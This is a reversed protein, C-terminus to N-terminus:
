KLADEIANELEIITEETGKYKLIGNKDIVLTTPMIKISYERFVFESLPFVQFKFPKKRLFPILSSKHDLAFGFFEVNKNKFKDTIKNLLPFENICGKCGIAWFDMVIVKGTLDNIDIIKGDIRKTTFTPVKQGIEVPKPKLNKVEKIIESYENLTLYKYGEPKRFINDPLEPSFDVAIVSIEWFTSKLTYKLVFGDIEGYPSYNVPIENTFYMEIKTSDPKTLLVKKCKYGLIVLSDNSYQYLYNNTDTSELVYKQYNEYEIFYREKKKEKPYIFQFKEDDYLSKLLITDPSYIVYSTDVKNYDSNLSLEMTNQFTIIGSSNNQNHKENCSSTLFLLILMLIFTSTKLQSYINM